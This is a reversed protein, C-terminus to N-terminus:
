GSALETSAFGTRGRGKAPRLTFCETLARPQLPKGINLMADFSTAGHFYIWSWLQGARMRIDRESVEAGRLADALGARTLGVLSPKVMDGLPAAIPPESLASSLM